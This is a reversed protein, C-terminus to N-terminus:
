LNNELAAVRCQLDYVAFTVCLVALTLVLM